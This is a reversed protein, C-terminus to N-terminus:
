KPMDTDYIGKINKHHIAINQVRISMGDAFYIFCWHKSSFLWDQTMEWRTTFTFIDNGKLQFLRYKHIKVGEQKSDSM